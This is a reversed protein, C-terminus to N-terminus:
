RLVSGDLDHIGGAELFEQYGPLDVPVREPEWRPFPLTEDDPELKIPKCVCRLTSGDGFQLRDQGANCRYTCIREMVDLIETDSVSEVTPGCGVLAVVLLV